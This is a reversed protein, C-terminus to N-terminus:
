AAKKLRPAPKALRASPKPRKIEQIPAPEPYVPTIKRRKKRRAHALDYLVQATMWFRADTKPFADGLKLAMSPSIGLRGNLIMSLNARTMGLHKALTSVTITDGMWARVLRGPHAPDYMEM